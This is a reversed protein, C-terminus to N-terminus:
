TTKTRWHEIRKHITRKISLKKERNEIRRKKETITKSCKSQDALLQWYKFNLDAQEALINIVYEADYNEEPMAGAVPNRSLYDTFKLNQRRCATKSYRFSNSPGAM